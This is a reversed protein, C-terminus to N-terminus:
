TSLEEIYISSIVNPNKQVETWTIIIWWKGLVCHVDLAVLYVLYKNKKIHIHSNTPQCTKKAVECNTKTQERNALAQNGNESAFLRLCYFYKRPYQGHAGTVSHLMLFEIHWSLPQWLIASMVYIVIFSLSLSPSFIMLIHFIRWFSSLFFFIIIFFGRCVM